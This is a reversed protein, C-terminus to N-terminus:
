ARKATVIWAGVSKGRVFLEPIKAEFEGNLQAAVGSVIEACAAACMVDNAYQKPFQEIMQRVRAGLALDRAAQNIRERDEDSLTSAHERRLETFDLFEAVTRSEWKPLEFWGNGLALIAARGVGADRAHYILGVLSGKHKELEVIAQTRDM